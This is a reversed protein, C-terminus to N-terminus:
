FGDQLCSGVLLDAIWATLVGLRELFWRGFWLVLVGDGGALAVCSSLGGTKRRPGDVGWGGVVTM